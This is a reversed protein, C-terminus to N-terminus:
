ILEMVANNIVDSLNGSLSLTFRIILAALEDIPLISIRVALQMFFFWIVMM